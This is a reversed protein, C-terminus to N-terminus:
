GSSISHHHTYHVVTRLVMYYSMARSQQVDANKCHNSVDKDNHSCNALTEYHPNWMNVIKHSLTVSDTVNTLSLNSNNMM